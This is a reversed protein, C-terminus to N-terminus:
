IPPDFEDLAREFFEVGAETFERRQAMQDDQVARRAGGDRPECLLQLALGNEAITVEFRGGDVPIL